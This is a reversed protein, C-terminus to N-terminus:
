KLNSDLNLEGSNTGVLTLVTKGEGFQAFLLVMRRLKAAWKRNFNLNMAGPNADILTSIKGNGGLQSFLVVM